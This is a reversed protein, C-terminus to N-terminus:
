TDASGASEWGHRSAAGAKRGHRNLAQVQKDKKRADDDKADRHFYGFWNEEGSVYTGWPAPGDGCNNLTGRVRIGDPAYRNVLHESGRAPGHIAAESLTTFRHNYPSAPDYACRGNRNQIEVLSLGHIMLEKDVEAAPRTQLM